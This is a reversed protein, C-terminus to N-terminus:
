KASRKAEKEIRDREKALERRIQPWREDPRITAPAVGQPWGPPFRAYLCMDNWSRRPTSTQASSWVSSTTAAGTALWVPALLMAMAGTSATLLFGPFTWVGVTQEVDYGTLRAHVIDGLAVQRAGTETLFRVFSDPGVALFEGEIHARRGGESPARLDLEIWGGYSTREAEAPSPLWGGPAPNTACGAALAFALCLLALRGSDARRRDM